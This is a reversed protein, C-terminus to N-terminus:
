RKRYLVSAMIEELKAELVKTQRQCMRIGEKNKIIEVEDQHRGMGLKLCYEKEKAGIKQMTVMVKIAQEYM